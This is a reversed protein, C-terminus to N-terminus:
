GQGTQAYYGHAHQRIARYQNSSLGASNHNDQRAFMEHSFFCHLSCDGFADSAFLLLLFSCLVVGVQWATMGFSFVDARISPQPDDTLEPAIYLPTGRLTSLRSQSTNMVHAVGFDAVKVTNLDASCLINAPKIDCHIVRADHAVAIGIAVEALAHVAQKVSMCVMAEALSLPLYEMIFGIPQMQADTMLALIRVINPHALLKLSKVERQLSSHMNDYLRKAAAVKGQYTIKYM